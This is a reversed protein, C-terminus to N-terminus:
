QGQKLKPAEEMCDIFRKAKQYQIDDLMEMILHPDTIGHSNMVEAFLEYLTERFITVAEERYGPVKIPNPNMKAAKTEVVAVVEQDKDGLSALIGQWKEKPINHKELTKEVFAVPFYSRLLEKSCRDLTAESLSAAALACAIVLTKLM